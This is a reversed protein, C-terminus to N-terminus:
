KPCSSGPKHDLPQCTTSDAERLNQWWPWCRSASGRGQFAPQGVGARTPQGPAGPCWALSQGRPPCQLSARPARPDENSACTHKMDSFCKHRQIYGM